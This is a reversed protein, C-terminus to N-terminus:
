GTPAVARRGAMGFYLALAATALHLFHDPTNLALINADTGVLFFGAVGLLLYVAGILTSVGRAAAETRSALLWVAGVAIHIINHLPNVEFIIEIDGETGAFNSFGTFAFGLLGVLLYVAGFVQAFRQVPTVGARDSASSAM